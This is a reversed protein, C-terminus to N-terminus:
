SPSLSLSYLIYTPTIVKYNIVDIAGAATSLPAAGGSRKWNSGFSLTRSGTADQVIRISGAQGVKPNIPNALTRNGGLTVVGNIFGAMDVAITAADTLTVEALANYTDGPSLAKTTLSGTRIESPSASSVTLTNGAVSAMGSGASVAYGWGAVSGDTTLFKGASGGQGPLVGANATFALGDAYAKTVASTATTPTGIDKIESNSNSGLTMRAVNAADSVVFAVEGGKVVVSTGGGASAITQDYASANWVVYLKEVAPLTIVASASSGPAVKITRGRAQDAAGNATTLTVNGTVTLSTMGDLAFDVLDFVGANLIDGWTNTNDGTGQKNLRSRATYSSVM